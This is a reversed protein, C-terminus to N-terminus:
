LYDGWDWGEGPFSPTSVKRRQPFYSLPNFNSFHFHIFHLFDPEYGSGLM